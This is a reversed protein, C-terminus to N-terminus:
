SQIPNRTEDAQRWKALIETKMQMCPADTPPENFDYEECNKLYKCTDCLGTLVCSIVAVGEAKTDDDYLQDFIVDHKWGGKM